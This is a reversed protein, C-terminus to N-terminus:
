SSFLEVFRNSPLEVPTGLMFSALKGIGGNISLFIM